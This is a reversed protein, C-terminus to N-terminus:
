MVWMLIEGHPVFVDEGDEDMGYLGTSCESYYEYGDRYIGITDIVVDEVTIQGDCTNAVDGVRWGYNIFTYYEMEIGKHLVYCTSCM